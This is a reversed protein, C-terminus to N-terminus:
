PLNTPLSCRRSIFTSWSREYATKWAPTNTQPLSHSPTSPRHHRNPQESTVTPCVPKETGARSTRHITSSRHKRFPHNSTGPQESHFGTDPTQPVIDPSPPQFRDPNRVAPPSPPAPFHSVIKQPANKESLPWVCFPLHQCATSGLQGEGNKQITQRSHIRAPQDIVCLIGRSKQTSVFTFSFVPVVFFTFILLTFIFWHLTFIYIGHYSVCSEYLYIVIWKPEIIQMKLFIFCNALM